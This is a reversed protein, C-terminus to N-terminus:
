CRNIKVIEAIEALKEDTLSPIAGFSPRAVFYGQVLDVGMSVLKEYETRYEVGEAIILINRSHAYKVLNEVIQQKDPSSHIGRVLSIDVKVYRPSLSLISVEGNYGTGYDDVAIEAGWEKATDLKRKTYDENTQESETVEIVVRSIFAEFQKKFESSEENSMIQNAISNIFLKAKGHLAPQISFSEAARFFTLRELSSLKFQSKALALLELPSKINESRPRMLAEYAYIDGTLIDVIPQFQYDVMEKEILTNLEEMCHLLYANQNYSELNFENLEGKRDRKVMYMAFDAYQVLQEMNDSDSPYWAMGASARLQMFTSDPMAIMTKRMTNQMDECLKYIEDKTKFGHFLLVFEDGSIRATVCNDSSIDSIVEGTTKIYLDGYDHGYTDNVFKLNDLDVMVAAAIGMEDPNAAICNVANWFARRNYLNTLVDYDRDHEIRMREVVEQTVNTFVGLTREGTRKLQSHIWRTEGEDTTVAVDASFTDTEGDSNIVKGLGYADFCEIPINVDDQREENCAPILEFVGPTCQVFRANKGEVSFAGVTVGTMELIQSLRAASDAEKQSYYELSTILEDIEAVGIQELSITRKASITKLKSSLGSIPKAILRASLFIGVIGIIGAAVASYVLRQQFRNVVAFLIEEEVVATVCWQEKVFPTNTNYLNMPVQHMLVNNTLGEAKLYVRDEDVPDVNQEVMQGSELRAKFLSGTALEVKNWEDEKKKLLLYGERGSQGLDRSPLFQSFYESDIEVGLVGLLSGDDLRIPISYTIVSVDESEGFVHFLSSWYGCDVIDFDPHNKSADAPNKFFAAEGEAVASFDFNPQWYPSLAIGLKKTVRSPGCMALLDSYDEPYNKPNIDRFYIGDKSDANNGELVFFGGTVVNRRMMEIIEGSLENLLESSVESHLKLSTPERKNDILWNQTNIVIAEATSELRSWRGVMESELMNARSQTREALIDLSNNEMERVTGGLYIGGYVICLQLAMILMLPMLIKKFITNKRIAM